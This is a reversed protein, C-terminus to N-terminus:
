LQKLNGEDLWCRDVGEDDVDIIIKGEWKCSTCKAEDGDYAQPLHNDQEASTNVKVNEGCHPCGETWNIWKKDAM